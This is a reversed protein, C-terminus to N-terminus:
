SGVYWKPDRSEAFATLRVFHDQLSKHRHGNPFHICFCGGEVHDITYRRGELEVYGGRGEHVVKIEDSM